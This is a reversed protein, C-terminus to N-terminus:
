KLSMFGDSDIIVDMIEDEEESESSSYFNIDYYDILQEIFEKIDYNDSIFIFLQELLFDSM